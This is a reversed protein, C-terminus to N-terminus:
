LLDDPRHLGWLAAGSAVGAARAALIDYPSDGVYIAADASVGLRDLACLIPEPQPKHEQTDEVTVVVEFAPSYSVQDLVLDVSERLKSTVIGLRRGEDRLRWLMETVGDYAFVTEAHRRI